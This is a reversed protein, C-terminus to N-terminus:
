QASSPARVSPGELLEMLHTRFSEFPYPKQLFSVRPTGSFRLLVEEESYGSSLLVPVDPRIRRLSELVQDGSLDPMTVDLVVIRVENAHLEFERLAARGDAATIVEFGLHRLLLDTVALVRPDDDVLLVLGSGSWEPDPELQTSTESSVDFHGRGSHALPEPLTPKGRTSAM